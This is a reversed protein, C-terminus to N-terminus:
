NLVTTSVCGKSCAVCTADQFLSNPLDCQLLKGILDQADYYTATREKAEMTEWKAKPKKVACRPRTPSTGEPCIGRMLLVEITEGLKKSVEVAVKSGNLHGCMSEFDVSLEELLSQFSRDLPITELEAIIESCKAFMAPGIDPVHKTM